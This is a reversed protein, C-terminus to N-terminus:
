AAPDPAVYDYHAWEQGRWPPRLRYTDKEIGEPGPAAFRPFDIELRAWPMDVVEGKRPGGHM